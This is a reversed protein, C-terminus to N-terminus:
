QLHHPLSIQVFRKAVPVQFLANRDSFVTLLFIQVSFAYNILLFQIKESVGCIMGDDDSM